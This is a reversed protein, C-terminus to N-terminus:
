EFEVEKITTCGDSFLLEYHYGVRPELGAKSSENWEKDTVFLILQPVLNPINKAISELHQGSLRAFPTDMIVPAEEGSLRAMAAVFSLSLIQREGASLEERSPMNWRDIVELHFNPDLRIDNFQDRKWALSNFVEKTEAEIQKRTEEYFRDKILTVSEASNSALKEKLSLLKLNNQKREEEERELKIDKLRSQWQEIQDNLKGIDRNLIAQRNRFLQIKEEINRIDVEESNGIKRKIEDIKRNQDDIEINSDHFNKCADSLSSIRESTLKSITRINGRLNLVSDEFESSKSNNLLKILAQFSASNKEFSRECICVGKALIGEIFQERIGSPIKGKEVQTNILKLSKEAQQALLRPYVLNAFKQIVLISNNRVAELRNIENETNKRLDQLYGVERSNALIMELDQIQRIGKSIELENEKILQRNKIIDREIKNQESILQDVTDTGLKQIEKRFDKAVALLHIEAKDIIPLRMINQIADEIKGNGPKTLDEMKEGNFFFYERVNRPLISEMKGEPNNIVKTNGHIDVMSLSFENKEFIANNGSKKFFRCREALYDFGKHRFGITVVVPMIQDNETELLFQKNILEGM